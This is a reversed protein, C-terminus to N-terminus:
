KSRVRDAKYKELLAFVEETTDPPPVYGGKTGGSKRCEMIWAAVWNPLAAVVKDHTRYSLELPFMCALFEAIKFADAEDRTWTLRFRCAVAIVSYSDKLFELGKGDSDIKVSPHVGVPGYVKAVLPFETGTKDHPGFFMPLKIKKLEWKLRAVSMPESM